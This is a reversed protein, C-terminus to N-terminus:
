RVGSFAVEGTAGGLLRMEFVAVVVDHRFFDSKDSDATHACVHGTPELFDTVGDGCDIVNPGFRGLGKGAFEAAFRAHPLGM